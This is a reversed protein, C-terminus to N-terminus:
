ACAYAHRRVHMHTYVYLLSQHEDWAGALGNGDRFADHLEWAHRNWHDELRRQVSAFLLLLSKWSEVPLVVVFAERRCKQTCTDLTHADTHIHTHIQVITPRSGTRIFSVIQQAHMHEHTWTHKHTHSYTHISAHKHPHNNNTHTCAYTRANPCAHISAYLWLYM